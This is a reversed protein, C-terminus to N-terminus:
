SRPAGYRTRPPKRRLKRAARAISKQYARRSFSERGKRVRRWVEAVAPILSDVADDTIPFTAGTTTLDIEKDYRYKYVRGNEASTAAADLEFKGDENITWYIPLGTHNAPIPQDRRMQDFGGPYPRLYQGNTEDLMFPEGSSDEAVSVFDSAVSYIRTDTSLTISGEAVEQPFAGTSLLDDLVENVAQLAVDIDIQRQSDTFSTLDSSVGGERRLVKNVLDLLTTAAM